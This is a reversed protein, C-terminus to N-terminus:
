ALDVNTTMGHPMGNGLQWLEQRRFVKASNREGAPISRFFQVLILASEPGNRLNQSLVSLRSSLVVALDLASLVKGRVGM